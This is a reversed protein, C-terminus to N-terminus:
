KRRFVLEIWGTRGAKADPLLWYGVFMDRSTTIGDIARAPAFRQDKQFFDSASVRADRAINKGGQYFEIEALGGGNGITELITVRIREIASRQKPVTLSIKSDISGDWPLELRDEKWLTTAGNFVELKVAKTGRDKAVGNHQNWLVIVNEEAASALGGFASIILFIFLLTHKSM